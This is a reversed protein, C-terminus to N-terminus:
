KVVQVAQTSPIWNVKAGFSESIYRVPVLTRGNSITAPVDLGPATKDIVLTLTKTGQKVTVTRTKDNWGFQAGFAEGIFRLPVMTRDNILTPSVDLTKSSGNVVASNSGVVLNISVLGTKQVVTYLSFKETYFTFTKTEANYTGGLVVPVYNGQADKEMRTATLQSIQEATLTLDSLDLTVAVPESFSTIPSSGTGTVLEATLDVVKGGVEFIGTSAGLATNDMIAQKEAATVVKAGIDVTAQAASVAGTVAPTILAQGTFRVSVGENSIVLPVNNKALENIVGPSIQAAADTKGALSVTAVGTTEVARNLTKDDETKVVDSIVTPAPPTIVVSTDDGGGGGGSDYPGALVPQAFVLVFMLALVCTLFSRVSHSKSKIQMDHLM